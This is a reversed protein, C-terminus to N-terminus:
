PIEEDWSEIAGMPDVPETYQTVPALPYTADIPESGLVSRADDVREPNVLVGGEFGCEKLTSRVALDPAVVKAHRYEAWLDVVVRNQTGLRVEGRVLECRVVVRVAVWWLKRDLSEHLLVPMLEDVKELDVDLAILEVDHGAKKPRKDTRRRGGERNALELDFNMRPVISAAKRREVGPPQEHLLGPEPWEPCFWIDDMDAVQPIPWINHLYAERKVLRVKKRM